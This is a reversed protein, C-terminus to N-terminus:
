RGFGADLLKAAAQERGGDVLGAYVQGTVRSNRRALAAAEALSAGAALAVAVYSHRLDHLGVPERDDGNSPPLM